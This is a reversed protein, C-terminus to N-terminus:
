AQAKGDKSRWIVLTVLFPILCIPAIIMALLVDEPPDFYVPHELTCNHFYRHHSQFIYQEALANPYSYNLRDAWLELCLQLDSYPRRIVKWECLESATVNRMLYVFYDWCKQTIDSYNGEMPQATGNSMAMPSSTGADQGFGKTEADTHCLGTGLLVWLLLLGQSLHGSSTHALPAM